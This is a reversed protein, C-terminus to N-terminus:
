DPAGARVSRTAFYLWSSRISSSRSSAARYAPAEAKGRNPGLGGGGGGFWRPASLTGLPGRGGARGPPAGPRPLVRGARPEDRGAVAAGATGGASAPTLPAPDEGISGDRRPDRSSEVRVVRAIASTTTSSIRVM